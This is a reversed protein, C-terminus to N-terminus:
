ISDILPITTSKFFPPTNFLQGNIYLSNVALSIFISAGVPSLYQLFIRDHCVVFISLIRGKVLGTLINQQADRLLRLQKCPILNRSHVSKRHSPRLRDWRCGAGYRRAVSLVLRCIEWKDSTDYLYPTQVPQRPLFISARDEFHIAPSLNLFIWRACSIRYRSYQAPIVM